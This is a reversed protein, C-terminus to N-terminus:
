LAPRQRRFTFGAHQPHQLKQFVFHDAAEPQEAHGFEGLEVFGIQMLRRRGIHRAHEARKREQVYLRVPISPSQIPPRRMGPRNGFEDALKQYFPASDSCFHCGKQLALVLTHGNGAWNVGAVNMRIGPKPGSPEAPKLLYNKVLVVSLLAAACIVAINSGIEIARSIKM